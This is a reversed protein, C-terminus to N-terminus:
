SYNSVQMQLGGFAGDGAAGAGESVCVSACKRRNGAGKVGLLFWVGSGPM